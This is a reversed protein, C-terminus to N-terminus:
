RGNLSDYYLLGKKAEIDEPNEELTKTFEEKAEKLRGQNLLTFAERNKPTSVQLERRVDRDIDLKPISKLVDSAAKELTIKEKTVVEKEKEAEVRGDFEIYAFGLSALTVVISFAGTTFGAIKKLKASRGLYEGCTRCKQAGPKIHELCHRCEM